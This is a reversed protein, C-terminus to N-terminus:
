MRVFLSDFECFYNVNLNPFNKGFKNSAIYKFGNEKLYKNLDYFNTGGIYTSNIQCETIIYKINKINEGFSKLANLEYGQLDMCLLDVNKINNDIMYKDMRIGDVQIKNQVNKKNYDPDNPHRNSFDIEFMSSAGMNDYKNLDFPYFTIKETSLSVAKEVLMIKKKNNENMKQFNNKCEILCDPNCEFSHCISNSYYNILKQADILDRSGLEFITHINEKNIYNNFSHYSM